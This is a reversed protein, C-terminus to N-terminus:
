TSNLKFLNAIISTVRKDGSCRVEAREIRRRMNFKVFHLINYVLLLPVEKKKKLEVLLHAVEKNKPSLM